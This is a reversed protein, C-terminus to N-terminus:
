QVPRRGRVLEDKLKQFADWDGAYALRAQEPWSAPDAGIGANALIEKLLDVDTAALQDFTTIGADQLASSIKPGIGEIRRLDDAKVASKAPKPPPESPREEAVPLDEDLRERLTDDIAEVHRSIARKTHRPKKSTLGVLVDLFIDFALLM